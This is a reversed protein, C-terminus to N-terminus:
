RLLKQYEADIQKQKEIKKLKEALAKQEERLQREQNKADQIKKEEAQLLALLAACSAAQCGNQVKQKLLQHATFPTKRWGNDRKWPTSEYGHEIWIDSISTPNTHLIEKAHDQVKEPSYEHCLIALKLLPHSSRNLTYTLYEKTYLECPSPNKHQKICKAWREHEKQERREKKQQEIKQKRQLEIEIEKKNAQELAFATCGVVGIGATAVLLRGVTIGHLSPIIITCLLGIHLHKM